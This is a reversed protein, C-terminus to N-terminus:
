ESSTALADSTMPGSTYSSILDICVVQVKAKREKLICDLCWRIFARYLIARVVEMM